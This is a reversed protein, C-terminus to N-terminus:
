SKIGNSSLLIEDVITFGVRVYSRIAATNDKRVFLYAKKGREVFYNMVNCMLSTAYGKNRHNSLTKVSGIVAFEPTETEIICGSVLKGDLFLGFCLQSNLNKVNQALEERSLNKRETKLFGWQDIDDPGLIRFDGTTANFDSKSCEMIYEPNVTINPFKERLKKGSSLPLLVIFIEDDLGDIFREVTKESGLIWIIQSGPSGWFYCIIGIIEHNEIAVFARLNGENAEIDGILYVSKPMQLKLFDILKEIDVSRSDVVDLNKM